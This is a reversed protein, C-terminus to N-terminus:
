AHCRPDRSWIERGCGCLHAQARECLACNSLSRTKHVEPRGRDQSGEQSIPIHVRFPAAADVVVVSQERPFMGEFRTQPEEM